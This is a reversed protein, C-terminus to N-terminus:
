HPTACVFPKSPYQLHMEFDFVFYNPLVLIAKTPSLLRVTVGFTKKVVFSVKGLLEAEDLLEDASETSERRSPLVGKSKYGLSLLTHSIEARMDNLQGPKIKVSAEKITKFGLHHLLCLPWKISEFYRLQKNALLAAFKQENQELLGRSLVGLDTALTKIDKDWVFCLNRFQSTRDKTEYELVFDPTIVELKFVEKLRHKRKELQEIADLPLNADIKAMIEAYDQETIDPANAVTESEIRVQEKGSNSYSSNVADCEPDPRVRAPQVKAGTDTMQLEYRKRFYTRSLNRIRTNEVWLIYFPDNKEIICHGDYSVNVRLGDINDFRTVQQYDSQLFRELTERRTPFRDPTCSVFTHHERKSLDRVRREMQRCTEVDCSMDCFWSFCSYFHRAEFSVGASLTPSFLVVDFQKAYRDIDSFHEDKIAQDTESTYSQVKRTPWRRNIWFELKKIVKISNAAIVINRGEVSLEAALTALWNKEKDHMFVKTDSATKAKYWYFIPNDRFCSMVNFTRDCLNADMAILQGATRALIQFNTFSTLLQQFNGSNFQAIISESEDLVLLDIERCSDPKLRHLSEAQIILRPIKCLDIDGALSDYLIFNPLSASLSKAFTKRFTVFVIRSAVSHRYLKAIHTRIAKTKGMGMPARLLITRESGFPAISTETEKVVLRGAPLKSHLQALDNMIPNHEASVMKVAVDPSLPIREILSQGKEARRCYMFIYNDKTVTYLFNDNDHTKCCKPCDIPGQTVRDFDICNNKHSRYTFHQGVPTKLVMAVTASVMEDDIEVSNYREKKATYTLRVYRATAPDLVQTLLGSMELDSGVQDETELLRKTRGCFQRDKVKDSRPMRMSFTTRNTAADFIRGYTKLLGQETALQVVQDFIIRTDDGTAFIFRDLVLHMGTIMSGKPDSVYLLLDELDVNHDEWLRCQQEVAQKILTKLSNALRMASDWALPDLDIDLMFKRPVGERVVEHHSVPGKRIEEQYFEEYEDLDRFVLFKMFGGGECRVILASALTQESHSALIEDFNSYTIM